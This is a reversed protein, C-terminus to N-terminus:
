VSTKSKGRLNNHQLIELFILQINSELDNLTGNNEITQFIYERKISKSEIETIHRFEINKLNPLSDDTLFNLLGDFLKITGNYFRSIIGGKYWLKDTYDNIEQNNIEKEEEKTSNNRVIEILYGGSEIIKKAEHNGRVDTIMVYEDKNNEIKRFLSNVWFEREPIVDRFENPM